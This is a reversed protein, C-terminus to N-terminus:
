EVRKFKRGSAKSLRYTESDPITQQLENEIYFICDQLYKLFRAKNMRAKSTIIVQYTGDPKKVFDKAFEALLLYDAKVKDIGEYGRYTFGIVACELLPGHYFAFMRMLESLKAKLKYTKIIEQGENEIAFKREDEPNLSIIKGDKCLAPFIAESVKM